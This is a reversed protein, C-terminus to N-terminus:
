GDILGKWEPVINEKDFRSSAKYAALSLALRVRENKMLYLLKDAMARVDGNRILFGDVGDAIIESPGSPCDFSVIPVGFSQAEILVMPLGEFHSSMVYLSASSYVKKINRESGKLIVRKLGLSDIQNQLSEREEGDGYINLSFEPAYEEIYSWATILRDFGKGKTLSGVSVVTRADESYLYEREFPAQNRILKVNENIRKFFGYDAKTLVVVGSLFRYLCGRIIRYFLNAQTSSTHELSWMNKHRIGLLLMAPTLRVMSHVLIFDYSGKRVHEKLKLIFGLGSLNFFSIAVREDIAYSPVSGYNCAIEVDYDFCLSNALGAAVRESGGLKEMGYIVFLIKKM